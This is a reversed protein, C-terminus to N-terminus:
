AAIASPRLSARIRGKIVVLDNDVVLPKPRQDIDRPAGVLVPPDYLRWVTEATGGRWDYVQACVADGPGAAANLDLIVIDGPLYGAGELARTKLTWPVAANSGGTLARVAADIPSNDAVFPVAEESLGRVPRRQARAAASPPAIGTHASIKEITNAHLTSTGDEGERLPRTLTSPAIGVEKAIRTLPKGTQLAVQRLWARHQAATDQDKRPLQM